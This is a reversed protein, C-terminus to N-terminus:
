GPSLCSSEFERLRLGSENNTTFPVLSKVNEVNIEVKADDIDPLYRFLRDVKKQVYDEIEQTIEINKGIVQLQM